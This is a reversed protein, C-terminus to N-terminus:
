VGGTPLSANERKGPSVRVSYLTGRWNPNSGATGRNEGFLVVFEM